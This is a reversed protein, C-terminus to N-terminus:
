QVPGAARRARRRLEGLEGLLLELQERVDGLPQGVPLDPLLHEEGLLGHLVVHGADQCLESQLPTGLGGHEGRPQQIRCAVRPPPVMPVGIPSWCGQGPMWRWRCGRVLLWGDLLIMTVTVLPSVALWAGAVGVLAGVVAPGAARASATRRM